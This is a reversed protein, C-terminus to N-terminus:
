LRGKESKVDFILILAASLASLMVMFIITAGYRNCLAGVCVGVLLIM